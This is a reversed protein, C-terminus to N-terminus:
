KGKLPSRSCTRGSSSRLGCSSASDTGAEGAASHGHKESPLRNATAPRKANQCVPSPGDPLGATRPAPSRRMATLSRILDIQVVHLGPRVGEFHFLGRKDSVVFTGDEMYVRIGAVGDPGDGTEESCAGTSIRGMLTSRTRLFDDRVTVTARGTNSSVGASSAVATNTATGIRLDSLAEDVYDVTAVGGKAIIGISFTLTRGDTSITPDAAALNNLLVSGKRLRFGIPLTDSLQVGGAAATSSMNTVSLKYPVFDGHGASEKGASKQVWLGAPAPDLPVDIRLAPGPNIVFVESRSGNVITFPGGPLAQIVTTAVTSPFQLGSSSHRRFSIFRSTCFPFRFGGPSFTYLKGSSDSTSGGSTLTAPYSSVGDDGLITAPLGTATNIMTITAGNLPLGTASDFIIGYPDVM